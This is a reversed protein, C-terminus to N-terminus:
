GTAEGHYQRWAAWLSPANDEVLTVARRVDSDKMRTARLITLADTETPITLAVWGGGKWAHVHPPGHDNPYVRISFGDAM